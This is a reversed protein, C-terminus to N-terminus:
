ATLELRFDDKELLLESVDTRKLLDRLLNMLAVTSPDYEQPAPGKAKMADVVKWMPDAIDVRAFSRPPLDMVMAISLQRMGGSMENPVHEITPSTM